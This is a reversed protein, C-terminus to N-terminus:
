YLYGAQDKLAIVFDAYTFDTILRGDETEKFRIENGKDDFISELVSVHGDSTRTEKTVNGAENYEYEFASINGDYDTQIRKICNGSDDYVKENCSKGGNKLTCIAKIQNGKDDYSYECVCDTEIDSTYVYKIVNGNDDYTYEKKDVLMEHNEQSDGYTTVEKIIRSSEDYITETICDIEGDFTTQIETIINGNEDYVYEYDYGYIEGTEHKVTFKIQDGKENFRYERLYTEGDSDEYFDFIVNHNNDYKYERYTTKHNRDSNINYSERKEKIIERKDNYEIEWSETYGNNYTCVSKTVNGSGDFTVDKQIFLSGDRFYVKTYVCRAISDFRQKADKYGIAEYFAKAAGYPENSDLLAEAEAYKSVRYAEICETLRQASDKYGNLKKFGSIAEEYKGEGYAAAASNYRIEPIIVKSILLSLAIIFVACPLGIAIFKKVAKIQREKERKAEEKQRETERRESEEHETIVALDVRCKVLLEASDKYDPIAEFLSIASEIHPRDAKGASYVAAAYIADNKYEESLQAIYGTLASGDTGGFPLRCKVFESIDRTKQEAMLRYLKAAANYPDASLVEGCYGDAKDFDGNRLCEFADDLLQDTNLNGSKKAKMVTVRENKENGNYCTNFLMDIAVDRIFSTM